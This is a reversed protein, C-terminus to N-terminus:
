EGKTDYFELFVEELSAHSIEIDRLNMASLKKILPNVDGKINLVVGDPLKEVIESGPFELEESLSQEDFHLRVNHIKKNKLEQISETSVITGEKIIVVRSCIRDVETLNHSSMFITSGKVQMDLLMEYVKNQLLPDLGATPEDLIIFEKPYMLALIIGLKRKNGTSLNHYKIKPNFDLERVLREVSNSKGQLSEIFEIHEQGTWGDYLSDDASLYGIKTKLPASKEKADQGLVSIKGKSPNLFDMICRITTTKGAGNPGLFGLIEGKEVSFSVSRLAEVAGFNKSLNDVELVAM